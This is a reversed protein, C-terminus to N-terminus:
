VTVYKNYVYGINNDFIRVKYWGNLTEGIITIDDGGKYAGIIKSATSPEARVNLMTKVNARGHFENVKVKAIETIDSVFRGCVYGIHDDYCLVRYWGNSTEGTITIQDKANYHGLSAADTTPATRVELVGRVAATGTANLEKVTITEGSVADNKGTEPYRLVSDWPKNYYSRTCFEKGTQDGPKGGTAKGNENISAHVIVGNGVYMAVHHAQNLLIDGPLLGAGTSVSVTKIVDKFGIKLAVSRMNGTYTAGNTKLPIGAYECATIIASSCDYDGYEGWRYRQDYGHKNDAAMALLWDLAKKIKSM